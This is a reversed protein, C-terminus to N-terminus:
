EQCNCSQCLEYESNATLYDGVKLNDLDWATFQIYFPKDKVFPYMGKLVDPEDWIKGIITLLPKAVANTFRIRAIEDRSLLIMSYTNFIPLWTICWDVFEKSYLKLIPVDSYDKPILKSCAYASLLYILLCVYLYQSIM